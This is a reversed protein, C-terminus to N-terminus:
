PSTTDGRRIFSKQKMQATQLSYVLGPSKYFLLLRRRGYTDCVCADREDWGM